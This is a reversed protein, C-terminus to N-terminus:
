KGRIRDVEMQIAQDLSMAFEQVNNEVPELQLELESFQRFAELRDPSDIIEPLKKRLYNLFDLTHRKKLEEPKCKYLADPKTGFEFSEKLATARDPYWSNTVVFDLDDYMGSIRNNLHETLLSKISQDDLDVTSRLDRIAEEVVGDYNIPMGILNGFRQELWSYDKNYAHTTGGQRLSLLLECNIELLLKAATEVTEQRVRSHHYAENRYRHLYKLPDVFRSDIQESRESLYRVKEDFYRLVAYKQKKNLPQWEVLDQLTKPRDAEPIEIARSRIREQMDEHELEHQICREMQIEAANDLLLLALRLQALRGDKIYRCAEDLQLLIFGLHEM